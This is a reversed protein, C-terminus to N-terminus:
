ARGPGEDAHDRISRCVRSTKNKHVAAPLGATGRVAPRWAAKSGFPVLASFTVGAAIGGLIGNGEGVELPDMIYREASDRQSEGTTQYRPGAHAFRWRWSSAFGWPGMGRYMAEIFAASEEDGCACVEFFMVKASWVTQTNQVPSQQSDCAVEPPAHLCPRHKGVMVMEYSMRWRVFGSSATQRSHEPQQMLFCAFPDITKIPSRVSLHPVVVALRPQSIFFGVQSTQPIRMLIRNLV